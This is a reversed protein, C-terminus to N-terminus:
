AIAQRVRVPNHSQGPSLIHHLRRMVKSQDSRGVQGSVSQGQYLTQKDKKYQDLTNRSDVLHKKVTDLEQQSAQWKDESHQVKEEEQQCQEQPVCCYWTCISDGLLLRHQSPHLRAASGVSIDPGLCWSLLGCFVSQGFNTYLAFCVLNTAVLQEACVSQVLKRTLSALVQTLKESFFSGWRVKLQHVRRREAELSASMIEHEQKLKDVQHLAERLETQVKQQGFKDETLQFFLSVSSIAGVVSPCLFVTQGGDQVTTRQCAFFFPLLTQFDLCFYLNPWIFGNLHFLVDHFSDLQLTNVFSCTDEIVLNTLTLSTLKTIMPFM